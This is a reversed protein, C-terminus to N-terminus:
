TEGEEGPGGAIESWGFPQPLPDDNLGIHEGDLKIARMARVGVGDRNAQLEVSAGEVRADGGARVHHHGAASERLSGGAALEVDREAAISVDRAALRLSRAASLEVEAGSFSLVPGRDTVEVRLVVEGGSSRITLQDRETGAELEYRRGSLLTVAASAVPAEIDDLAVDPSRSELSGDGTRLAEPGAADLDRKVM